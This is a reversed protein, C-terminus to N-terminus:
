EPFDSQVLLAIRDRSFELTASKQKEERSRKSYDASYEVPRDSARILLTWNLRKPPMVDPELGM